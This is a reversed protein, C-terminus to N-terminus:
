PALLLQRLREQVSIDVGCALLYSTAGHYKEEIYALTERMYHPPTMFFRRDTEPVMHIFTDFWPKLLSESVQYDDVIHDHGVGALALLLATILGTRDKGHSCNFLRADSDAAALTLMVSRIATQSQDLIHRYLDVLSIKKHGNNRQLRMMDRELSVGLLPINHYSIGPQDRLDHPQQRIESQSRLDIVHRVPYSLLVDLDSQSLRVPADSRIFRGCQTERGDATPHGGLDRINYLTQLKLPPCDQSRSDAM